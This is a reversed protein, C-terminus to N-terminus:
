NKTCIIFDAYAHQASGHTLGTPTGTAGPTTSASSGALETANTLGTSNTDNTVHVGSAYFNPNTSNAGTSYFSLRTDYNSLGILAVYTGAAHTHAASTHTHSLNSFSGGTVGGSASVIRVFRDNISADITWGTPAISQYFPMKTGAPIPGAFAPTQAIDEWTTGNDRQITATDTNVYLGYNGAAPRQATTGKLGRYHFKPNATDAGPFAGADGLTADNAKFAAQVDIKFERIRDDGQSVAEVGAPTTVDWTM